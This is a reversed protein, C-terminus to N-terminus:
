DALESLYIWRQCHRCWTREEASKKDYGINKTHQVNLPNKCFPCDIPKFKGIKKIIEEISM